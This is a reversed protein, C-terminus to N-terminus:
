GDFAGSPSCSGLDIRDRKLTRDKITDCHHSFDVSCSQRPRQRHRQTASLCEEGGGRLYSVLIICLLAQTFSRAHVSVLM